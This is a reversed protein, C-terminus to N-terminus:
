ASAAVPESRAVPVEELLVIREGLFKLTPEVLKPDFHTGACRRIEASAEAFTNAMGIVHNEDASFVIWTNPTAKRLITLREETSM